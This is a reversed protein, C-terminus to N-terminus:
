SKEFGYFFFFTWSYAIRKKLSIFAGNELHFTVSEDTPFIHLLISLSRRLAMELSISYTLNYWLVTCIDKLSRQM